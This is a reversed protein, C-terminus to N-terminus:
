KQFLYAVISLALLTGVLAFSVAVGWTIGASAAPIMPSLIQDVTTAPPGLNASFFYQDRM